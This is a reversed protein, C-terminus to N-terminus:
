KTLLSVYNKIIDKKNYAPTFIKFKIADKEQLVLKGQIIDQKAFRLHLTSNQLREQMEDIIQSIQEQSIKSVLKEIFKKAEKKKIKLRLLTIPNEFHGTLNQRSFDEWSVGFMESFSELIKKVDETAHVIIEISIEIKEAM